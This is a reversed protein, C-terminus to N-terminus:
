LGKYIQSIGTKDEVDDDGDIMNIMEYFCKICTNWLFNDKRNRPAKLEKGCRSCKIMVVDKGKLYEEWCIDIMEVLESYPIAEGAEWNDHM